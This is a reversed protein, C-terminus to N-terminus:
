LHKIALRHNNCGCGGSYYCDQHPYIKAETEVAQESAVDRAFRVGHVFAKWYAANESDNKDLCEAAFESKEKIERELLEIAKNPADDLQCWEPIVTLDILNRFPSKGPYLCRLGNIQSVMYPCTRCSDVKIIKM